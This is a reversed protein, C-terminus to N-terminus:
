RPRSARAKHSRKRLPRQRVMSIVPYNIIMQRINAMEQELNDHWVDRIYSVKPDLVAASPSGANMRAPVVPRPCRAACSCRRAGRRHFNYMHVGDRRMTFVQLYM